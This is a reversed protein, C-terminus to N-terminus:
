RDIREDPWIYKHIQLQLRVNLSSCLIWSALESPIIKGLVPSFLIHSSSLDYRHIFDVAWDFDFKSSIVFKLEHQYNKILNINELFNRDSMNSDPCKFDMIIRVRRDVDKISFSGSTELLVTKGLDCLRKLLDICENQFLPEGGTVEVLSVSLASCLDILGSVSMEFGPSEAANKTDCYSCSLPCGSLRIFFCPLGVFSSEGQISIFTNFVRLM